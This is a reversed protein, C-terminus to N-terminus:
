IELPQRMAPVKGSCRGCLRLVEHLFAEIGESNSVNQFAEWDPPPMSSPVISSMGTVFQRYSEDSQSFAKVASLLRGFEAIMSAQNADKPNWPHSLLSSFVGPVLSQSVFVFLGRRYDDINITNTSQQSFQELLERFFRLCTKRVVPDTVRVAGDSVIQLMTQFHPANTPSLLV